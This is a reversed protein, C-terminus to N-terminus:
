GSGAPAGVFRAIKTRAEDYKATASESFAYVGRHVNAYGTRYVADMADLVQTPKQSSAASDLFVVPKGNVMESLIPFDRRVRTTDFTMAHTM